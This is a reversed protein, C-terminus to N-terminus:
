DFFGGTDGGAWCGGECEPFVEDALQKFATAASIDQGEYGMPHFIQGIYRGQLRIQGVVYIGGGVGYVSIDPNRSYIAIYGGDEGLYRNVTPLIRSEVTGDSQTVDVTFDEPLMNVGLESENM